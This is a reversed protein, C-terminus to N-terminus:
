GKAQRAQGAFDLNFYAMAMAGWVIFTISLIIVSASTKIEKRGDVIELAPQYYVYTGFYHEKIIALHFQKCFSLCNM